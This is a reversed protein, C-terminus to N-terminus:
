FITTCTIGAANGTRIINNSLRRDQLITEHNEKDGSELMKCKDFYNVYICEEDLGYIFYPMLEGFNKGSVSCVGKNRLKLQKIKEEVLTHLRFQKEVTIASRTSTTAQPTVFGKIYGREISKPIINRTVQRSAIVRDLKPNLEVVLDIM